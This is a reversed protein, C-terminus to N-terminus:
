RRLAATTMVIMGPATGGRSLETSLAVDLWPTPAALVDLGVHHEIWASDLPERALVPRYHLSLDLGGGLLSAGLAPRVSVAELWPLRTVTAALEVRAPGPGLHRVQAWGALDHASGATAGADFSLAPLALGADVGGQALLADSECVPRAPATVECLWGRPLLENLRLSKEPRGLDIRAGLHVTGLRVSADASAAALEMPPAGWPNDAPYMALEASVGASAHGPSVRASAALRREDLRGQYTSGQAVIAVASRAADYDLEVGFRTDELAPASTIPDPSFGGFAAASLGGWRPTRVRAGDLMGIGSAAARLRGVVALPDGQPGWQLELARVLVRPRDFSGAAARTSWARLAADADFGLSLAQSLLGGLRGRLEGWLVAPGQEPVLVASSEGVLVRLGNLPAVIGIPVPRPHQHAAPLLARPWMGRFARLSHPAALHAPAAVAEEAPRAEVRDGAHLVRGELAVAASTRNVAIVRFATAGRRVLSGVRLGRDEGGALYAREAAIELVAIGAPVPPPPAARRPRRAWAPSTMLLAAIVLALRM